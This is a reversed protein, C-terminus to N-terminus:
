WIKYDKQLSSAFDQLDESTAQSFEGSQRLSANLSNIADEQRQAANVVEGLASVLFGLAKGAVNSAVNGAFSALAMDMKKTSGVAKKEVQDFGQTLKSLAKLAAKEEVTIEVSVENAM